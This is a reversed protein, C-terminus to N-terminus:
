EKKLPRHLIRTMAADISLGNYIIDCVTQSIPLAINKAKALDLVAQATAIGEITAALKQRASETDLRQGLHYGFQFNRSKHGYCTLLLDGVGSLGYLTEAKAGCAVALQTMEYLGRTVIGARANDGLGCGIVIGSAIAIVNKLAGGLCVGIPDFSLYPRFSSHNFQPLLKEGLAKDEVALVIATPLGRVVEDAFSPGSLVGYAAGPLEESLIQHILLHSGKEVGKASLIVPVGVSLHPKAARMAERISQAPTVFFVVDADAALSLDQTARIAPTLALGPLYRANTKQFNIEEAADPNRTYLTVDRGARSLACAVATGWAGAGIIFINQYQSMIAGRRHFVFFRAAM